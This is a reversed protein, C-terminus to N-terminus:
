SVGDQHWPNICREEGCLNRTRRFPHRSKTCVGCVAAALERVSIKKTAITFRLREYRTEEIYRPVPVGPKKVANIRPHTIRRERTRKGEWFVCPTCVKSINLRRVDRRTLLSGICKRHFRTLDKATIDHGLKSIKHVVSRDCHTAISADSAVETQSVADSCQTSAVSWSDQTDYDGYSGWYDSM